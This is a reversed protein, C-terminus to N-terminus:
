LKKSYTNGDIPHDTQKVKTHHVSRAQITSFGPTLTLVLPVHIVRMVFTFLRLFYLSYTLFNFFKFTACIFIARYAHEKLVPM